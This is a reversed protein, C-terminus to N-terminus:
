HQRNKERKKIKRLFSDCKKRSIARRRLGKQFNVAKNSGNNITVIVADSSAVKKARNGLRLLPFCVITEL